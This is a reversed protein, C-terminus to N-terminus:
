SEHTLRVGFLPTKNSLHLSLCGTVHTPIVEATHGKFPEYLSM